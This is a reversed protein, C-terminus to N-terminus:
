TLTVSSLTLSHHFSLSANIKPVGAGTLQAVFRRLPSLALSCFSLFSVKKQTNEEQWFM